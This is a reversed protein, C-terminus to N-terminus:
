ESATQASPPRRARRALRREGSRIGVGRQPDPGQAQRLLRDLDARRRRAPVSLRDGEMGANRARRSETIYNGGDAGFNTRQFGGTILQQGKPCRAIASRIEGSKVFITKHPSPNAPILGNGCVVQVTATRTNTSAPSADFLLASVHFGRQAGLREYSHPYIAEGDPDPLQHNILGGGVPYTKGPCLVEFRSQEEPNTMKVDAERMVLGRVPGSKGPDTRPGSFKGQVRISGKASDLVYLGSSSLMAMRTNNCSSGKEVMYVIGRRHVSEPTQVVGTRIETWDAITNALVNPSPYCGDESVSRQHLAVKFAAELRKTPPNHGAGGPRAGALSAALLASLVALAILAPLTRRANM